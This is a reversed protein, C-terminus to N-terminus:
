QKPQAWSVGLILHDYGFGNLKDIAAQADEHRVYTVFAFGRSAGTRRDKALFIRTTPGFPRFLDEVDSQKTDESLNTVRISNSDDRRMGMGGRDGGGGGHRLAPPVYGGGSRAGGDSRADGSGPGVDVSAEQPLEDLRNKYPCKSTWHDGEQGCTRCVISM